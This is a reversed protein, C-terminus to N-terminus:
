KDIKAMFAIYFYVCFDYLNGRWSVSSISPPSRPGVSHKYTPIMTYHDHKFVFLVLLYVSIDQSFLICWNFASKTKVKLCYTEVYCCRQLAYVSLTLRTVNLLVM